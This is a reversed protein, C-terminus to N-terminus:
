SAFITMTMLFLTSSITREVRGKTKSLSLFTKEGSRLGTLLAEIGAVNRHRLLKKLVLARDDGLALGFPLRTGKKLFAGDAEIRVVKGEFVVHSIGNWDLYKCDAIIGHIVLYDGTKKYRDTIEKADSMLRMEGFAYSSDAASGNSDSVAFQKHCGILLALLLFSATKIDM